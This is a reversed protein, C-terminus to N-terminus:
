TRDSLHGVIPQVLLGTLPAALCLLALESEKAGLMEHIPSMNAMQLGWGFRIGMFGFSLNWLQWFSLRPKTM